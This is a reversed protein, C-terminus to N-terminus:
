PRHPEAPARTFTRLGRKFGYLAPAVTAIAVIRGAEFGIDAAPADTTAGMVRAERLIPDLAM